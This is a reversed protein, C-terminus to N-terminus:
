ASICAYMCLMFVHCIYMCSDICLHWIQRSPKSSSLWTWELVHVLLYTCTYTCKSDWCMCMYMHIDAYYELMYIYLCTCTYTCVRNQANESHCICIFVLVHVSDIYLYIHVKFGAQIAVAKICIQCLFLSVKVFFFKICLCDLTPLNQVNDYLYMTVYTVLTCQWMLLWLKSCQELQRPWLKGTNHASTPGLTVELM